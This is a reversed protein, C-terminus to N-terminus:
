KKKKEPEEKGKKVKRVIWWILGAVLAYPLIWFVLRLVGNISELLRKVLESIKVFAADAYESQKEQINVSITSYSVQTDTNKLSDELYKITREQQIIRDMLQLKEDVTKAEDVLSKYKALKLKEDAIQDELSTYQGTVDMVNESFSQIEGIERLQSIVADYKKSEVKIQYSGTFYSRRGVPGTKYTNKNLIFSDTSTVISTIKADADWFSGREVESSLYANKTIKRDKVEPAFDEGGYPPIPSPYYGGRAIASEAVGYDAGYSAIGMKEQLGILPTPSGNSFFVFGVVLIILLTILWNEKIKHWQDAITM